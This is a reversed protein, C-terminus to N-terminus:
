DTAVATLELETKFSLLKESQLANYDYEMLKNKCDLLDNDLV